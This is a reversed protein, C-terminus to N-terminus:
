RARARGGAAGRARFPTLMPPQIASMTEDDDQENMM